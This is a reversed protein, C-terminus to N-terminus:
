SPLTVMRGVSAKNGGRAQVQERTQKRIDWAKATYSRGGMM